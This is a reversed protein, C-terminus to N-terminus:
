ADLLCAGMCLKWMWSGSAHQASVQSEMGVFCLLLLEVLFLVFLESQAEFTGQGTCLLYMVLVAKGSAHEMCWQLLGVAGVSTLM